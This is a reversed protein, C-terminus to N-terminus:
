TGRHARFIKEAAQMLRKRRQYIRFYESRDNQPTATKLGPIFGARKMWYNIEKTTETERKKRAMWRGYMASGRIMAITKGLRELNFYGPAGPILFRSQNQRGLASDM